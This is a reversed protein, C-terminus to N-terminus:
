NSFRANVYAAQMLLGNANLVGWSNDVLNGAWFYAMGIHHSAAYSSLAANYTPDDLCGGWENIIAGHGHQHAFTFERNSETGWSAWMFNLPESCPIGNVQGSQGDYIHWDYVLNPYNLDPEQGNTIPNMTNNWDNSGLMILSRPNISRIATILTTQVKLWSPADITHMENWDNYLIAPDNQYLTGISQWFALTETLLQGANFRQQLNSDDVDSPEAQAPCYTVSGGCPPIQYENTRTLLVYNGNQEAWSIIQEIWSRYNMLANPVYLNSNWWGVNINLRIYNMKFQSNFWALRQPGNGFLTSIGDGFETGATDFGRLDVICNHEDMIYGTLSDVHLWSFHYVGNADKSVGAYHCVRRSPIIAHAPIHSVPQSSPSHAFAPSGNLLIPLSSVLLILALQFLSFRRVPMRRQFPPPIVPM